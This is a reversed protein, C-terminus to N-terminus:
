DVMRIQADIPGLSGSDTMFIEHGSLAMITGASKAQGAIVFSISDFKSHIFRVIEEAAEGSGGSTELTFIWGAEKARTGSSTLFSPTIMMNFYEKPFLSKRQRPMSLFILAGFSM